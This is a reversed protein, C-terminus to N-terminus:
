NYHATGVNDLHPETLETVDYRNIRIIHPTSCTCTPDFILPNQSTIEFLSDCNTCLYEYKVWLSNM